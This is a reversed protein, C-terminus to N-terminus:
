MLAEDYIARQGGVYKPRHRACIIPAAGIKRLSIRLPVVVSHMHMGIMTGGIDIGADAKGQITEVLVPDKFRQYCVTAFAGGAHNPQPIANVQEFGYREMTEREVVLARNLHECCQAAALIGNEELVPIIGDFVANASDLNTATGIQDGLIESSSCGIVFISGKKLKAAALIEQVAQRSQATIEKFDM